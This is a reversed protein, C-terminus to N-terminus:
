LTLFPLLWMCVAVWWDLCQGSTKIPSFHSLLKNAANKLCAGEQWRWVAVTHEDDLGVTLLLRGTCSFNVACVGRTHLGRIVSLTRKSGADWVNM